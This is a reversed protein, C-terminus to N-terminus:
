RAQVRGLRTPEVLGEGLGTGAETLQV